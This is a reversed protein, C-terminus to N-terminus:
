YGLSEIVETIQEPLFESYGDGELIIKIAEEKTKGESLLEDYDEKIHGEVQDQYWYIFDVADCKMPVECEPEGAHMMVEAMKEKVREINWIPAEGIIEDHVPILLHFDLKNLEEDRMMNRMALKAMSAGGGQIPANIAQREAQAIFGSNTSIKIGKLEAEKMIVERAERTRAEELRSWYWDTLKKDPVPKKSSTGLLPNVKTTTDGIFSFEYKPLSADPLRRRRGWLDEVYGQERAKKYNGEMWEKAKPYHNFFNDSLKKAAAIDAKTVPIDKNPRIQEAISKVGRGYQLTIETTVM